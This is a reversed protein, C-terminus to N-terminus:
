WRGATFCARCPVGARGASRHHIDSRGAVRWCSGASTKRVRFEGNNRASGENGGRCERNKSCNVRVVRMYVKVAWSEYPLIRMLQNDQGFRAPEVPWICQAAAAAFERRKWPVSEVGGLTDLPRREATLINRPRLTIRPLTKPVQPTAEAIQRSEQSSVTIFRKRRSECRQYRQRETPEDTPSCLVVHSPLVYIPVRRTAASGLLIVKQRVLRGPRM